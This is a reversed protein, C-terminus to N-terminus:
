SGFGRSSGGSSSSGSSSYGRAAPPRYNDSRYNLKVTEVASASQLKTSLRPRAHARIHSILQGDDGDFLADSHWTLVPTVNAINNDVSVIGNSNIYNRAAKSLTERVTEAQYATRSIRPGGRVGQYIGYLVNPDDSNEIIQNEIDALSLTAGAYTFRPKAWLKGPEGATGRLKKLNTKKTDFSIAQIAVINQVNLWYALQSDKSRNEVNQQSLYQVYSNLYGEANKRVAEYAIRPRGKDVISFKSHFLDTAAYDINSQPAIVAETAFSTFTLAPALLATLATAAAAIMLKTNM